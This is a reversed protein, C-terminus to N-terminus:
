LPPVAACHAGGAAQGSGLALAPPAKYPNLAASVSLDAFVLALVFLFVMLAVPKRTM